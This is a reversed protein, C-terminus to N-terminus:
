CNICSMYSFNYMVKYSFIIYLGYKDLTDVRRDLAHAGLSIWKNSGNNRATILFFVVKNNAKCMPWLRLVRLCLAQSYKWKKTHARTSQLNYPLAFRPTGKIKTRKTGRNTPLYSYKMKSHTIRKLPNNLKPKSLKACKYPTNILPHNPNFFTPVRKTKPSYITAKIQIFRHLFIHM